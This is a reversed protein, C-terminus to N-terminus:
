LFGEDVKVGVEVVSVQIPLLTSVVVRVKAEQSWLKPPM